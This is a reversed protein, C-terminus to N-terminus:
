MAAVAAFRSGRFRRQRWCLRLGSGVKLATRPGQVRDILRLLGTLTYTHTAPHPGARSPAASPGAAAGAGADM